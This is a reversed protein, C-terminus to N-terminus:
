DDRRASPRARLEEVEPGTRAPPVAVAGAHAAEAPHQLQELVAGEDALDDALGSLETVRGNWVLLGGM